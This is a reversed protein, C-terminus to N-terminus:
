RTLALSGLAVLWSVFSGILFYETIEDIGVADITSGDKAKAQLEPFRILGKAGIVLGAATLQGALGLGLILLREMPGLLRGGRLRDAPQALGSNRPRLAGVSVLVLRVVINATAVNAVVLAAVLLLHELARGGVPGDGTFPLEAWALGRALPGGPTSAWGSLGLLLLPGALLAGLALLHARGRRGQARESATWWLVLPIISASLVVLDAAATLGALLAGGYLVVAGVVPVLWGPRTPRCLDMVGVGLVWLALWTM